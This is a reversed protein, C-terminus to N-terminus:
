VLSRETCESSTAVDGYVTYSSPILCHQRFLCLFFFCSLFACIIQVSLALLKSIVKLMKFIFCIWKM